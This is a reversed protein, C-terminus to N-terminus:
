KWLQERRAFLRSTLTVFQTHISQHLFPAILSFQRDTPTNWSTKPCLHHMVDTFGSSLGEGTERRKEENVGFTPWTRSEKGSKKEPFIRRFIRDMQHDKKNSPAMCIGATPGHFLSFCYGYLTKLSWTAGSVDSGEFSVSRFCFDFDKFRFSSSCITMFFLIHVVLLFLIHPSLIALFHM